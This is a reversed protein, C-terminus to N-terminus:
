REVRRHPRACPAPRSRRARTRHRFCGDVAATREREAVAPRRHGLGVHLRREAPETHRRGGGDRDLGPVDARAVDGREGAREHHFREPAPDHVLRVDARNAEADCGALERIGHSAHRRHEGTVAHCRGAEQHLLLALSRTADLEERADHAALRETQHHRESEAAGEGLREALHRHTQERQGGGVRAVEDRLDWARGRERSVAAPRRDIVIREDCEEQREGTRVSEGGPQAVLEVLQLAVRHEGGTVGRHCEVGAQHQSRHRAVCPSRGLHARGHGVEGPQERRARHCDRARRTATAPEPVPREGGIARETPVLVQEREMRGRGRDVAHGRHGADRLEGLGDVVQQHRYVGLLARREHRAM